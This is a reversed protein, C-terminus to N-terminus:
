AAKTSVTPALRRWWIWSIVANIWYAAYLGATLQLERSLYLPVAISNVILWFAWTEIRRQMLLFQAIVSFVLVASDVFPAYADTFYHLMAGYAATAALGAPLTWAIKRFNAHSISLEQGHDGKLWQWWGMASTVMFFGQLVVDAYLRSEFFLLGFLLCGIIGTWWTHVSNRGALLISITTVANAAIELPSMM